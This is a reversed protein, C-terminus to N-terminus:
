PGILPLSPLPLPLGGVQEVKATGSRVRYSHALRSPSDRQARDAVYYWDMRAEGPTITLVTSGHSDLDVFRVHRNLVKVATEIGVSTTRPPVRLLDAVGDSTV